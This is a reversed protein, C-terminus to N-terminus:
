MGKTFPSILIDSPDRKLVLTPCLLLSHLLLIYKYRNMGIELLLVVFTINKDYNRHELVYLMYKEKKSAGDGNDELPELIITKNM